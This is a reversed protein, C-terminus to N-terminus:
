FFKWKSLFNYIGLTYITPFMVIMKLSFLGLTNNKLKLCHANHDNPLFGGVAVWNPRLNSFIPM